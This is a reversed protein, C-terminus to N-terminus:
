LRYFRRLTTASATITELPIGTLATGELFRQHGHLSHNHNFNALSAIGCSPSSASNTKPANDDLELQGSIVCKESRDENVKSPM